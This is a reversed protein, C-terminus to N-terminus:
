PTNSGTFLGSQDETAKYLLQESEAKRFAELTRLLPHSPSVENGRYAGFLLV